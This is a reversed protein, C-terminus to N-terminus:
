QNKKQQQLERMFDTVDNFELYVSAFRIYAIKDLPKLSKMIIEGIKKTPYERSKMDAITQEIHKVIAEIKAQPVPRKECAREIGTLLKQKDFRERRGDKKIVMIPSEEIREYSTFRHGCRLCARRRRVFDGENSERSDVVKDENTSCFPCKM